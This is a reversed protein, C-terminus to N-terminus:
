DPNREMMDELDDRTFKPELHAYRADHILYFERITLKWFQQSPIGMVGMGLKM